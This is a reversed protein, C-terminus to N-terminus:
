AGRASGIMPNGREKGWFREWGAQGFVQDLDLFVITRKGLKLTKLIFEMGIELISGPPSELADEPARLVELVRDVLFGVSQTGLEVVLIRSDDTPDLVPMKFARRLDVVPLVRGRLNIVGVVAPPAKPVLTMEGPRIIERLRQIPLALECASLQFIVWQAGASSPVTSISEPM